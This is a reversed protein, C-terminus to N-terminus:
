HVVHPLAIQRVDGLRTAQVRCLQGGADVRQRFADGGGTAVQRGDLMFKATGLRSLRAEEYLGQTIAVCDRWSAAPHVNVEIV